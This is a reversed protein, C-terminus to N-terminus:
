VSTPYNLQMLLRTKMTAPATCNPTHWFYLIYGPVSHIDYRPSSIALQLTTNLEESHGGVSLKIGVYCLLPPFSYDALLSYCQLLTM